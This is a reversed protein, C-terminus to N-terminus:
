DEKKDKYVVMASYCYIQTKYDYLTSVQYKVDIFQNEDLKGLFGNVKEELDAEHEEDFLKVHISM